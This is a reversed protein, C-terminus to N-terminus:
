PKAMDRFFNAAEGGDTAPKANTASERQQQARLDRVDVGGGTRSRDVQPAWADFRQLFLTLDRVRPPKSWGLLECLEADSMGAYRAMHAMFVAYPKDGNQAIADLRDGAKSELGRDWTPAPRGHKAFVAPANQRVAQLHVRGSPAPVNDPTRDADMVRAPAREPDPDREGRSEEGRRDDCGDCGTVRKDSGTVTQPIAPKNAPTRKRDRWEKTRTAGSKGTAKWEDGYGTLTVDCGDCGTVLADRDGHRERLRTLAARVMDVSMGLDPALYEPDAFHAPITGGFEREGNILLLLLFVERADRGVRRIKPNRHFASDIKTWRM